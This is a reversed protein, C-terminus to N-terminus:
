QHQQQMQQNQSRIQQLMQQNQELQAKRKAMREERRKRYESFARLVNGNGDVAKRLRMIMQFRSNNQISFTETDCPSAKKLALLLKSFAENYMSPNGQLEFLHDAFKRFVGEAPEEVLQVLSNVIIEKFSNVMNQVTEENLAKNNLMGFADALISVIGMLLAKHTLNIISQIVEPILKPAVNSLFWVSQEDNFKRMFTDYSIVASEAVQFSLNNLAHFVTTTFWEIEIVNPSFQGIMKFMETSAQEFGGNSIVPTILRAYLESYFPDLEPFKQRLEYFYNFFCDEVKGRSLMLSFIGTIQQSVTDFPLTVQASNIAVLITDIISEDVEVNPIFLSALNLLPPLVTTGMNPGFSPIHKCCRTIVYISTEILKPDVESHKELVILLPGFLKKCLNLDEESYILDSKERALDERFFFNHDYSNSKCILMLISLYIRKVYKKNLNQIYNQNQGILFEIIENPFLSLNRRVLNLLARTAANVVSDDSSSIMNFVFQIFQSLVQDGAKFFNRCNSVCSLLACLFNPSQDVSAYQLLNGLINIVVDSKTTNSQFIFDHISYCLNISPQQRSLFDIYGDPDMNYILSLNHRIIIKDLKDENFLVLMNYCSQRIENLIPIFFTISAKTEEKDKFTSLTNPLVRGWISVFSSRLDDDINEPPVSCIFQYLRLLDENLMQLSFNNEQFSSLLQEIQNVQYESFNEKSEQAYLLSLLFLGTYRELFAVILRVAFSSGIFENNSFLGKSLFEILFHSYRYVYTRKDHRLFISYLCLYAKESTTENTLLQCITKILDLNVINDTSGWRFTCNAITLAYNSLEEVMICNTIISTMQQLFNALLYQRLNTRHKESIIQSSDIKEFFSSIVMIVIKIFNQDNCLAFVRSFSQFNDPWDFLAITSLADILNYLINGNYNNSFIMELLSDQYQTKSGPNIQKWYNEINNKILSSSIFHVQPHPSNKTLLLATIISDPQQTWQNLLNTAEPPPPVLSLSCAAKEINEYSFPNDEM